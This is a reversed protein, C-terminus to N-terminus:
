AACGGNIVKKPWKNGVKNDFFTQLDKINSINGINGITRVYSPRKHTNPNQTNHTAYTRPDQKQTIHYYEKLILLKRPLLNTILLYYQYYKAARTM